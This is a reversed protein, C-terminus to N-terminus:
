AIIKFQMRLPAKNINILDIKEFHVAESIQAQVTM